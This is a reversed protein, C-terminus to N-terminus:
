PLFAWAGAQECARMADPTVDASYVIVPTRRARGAEIVRLQKLMDLGSMGPMHLDCIVADYDADAVADLVAEGGDVCVSRHGAKQLIRQLVMRNAEHDDA